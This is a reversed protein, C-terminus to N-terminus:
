RIGLTPHSQFGYVSDPGSSSKGTSDNENNNTTNNNSTYSAPYGGTEVFSDAVHSASSSSGAGGGSSGGYGGASVNDKGQAVGTTTESPTSPGPRYSNAAFMIGQTSFYLIEARLASNLHPQQLIGELAVIEVMNKDRANKKQNFRFPNLSRWTIDERNSYWIVIMGLMGRGAQLYSPFALLVQYDKSSLFSLFQFFLILGDFFIHGVVYRKSRNMISLRNSITISLGKENSRYFQFNAWLSYVYICLVIIYYLMFKPWNIALEARSNQIWLLGHQDYGYVRPGMLLLCVATLLSFGIVLAAFYFKNHKFSSFPNTYALRLDVSIVLFCMQVAILSFQTLFAWRGANLSSNCYYPYKSADDSYLYDKGVDPLWLYQQFYAIEMICGYIALGLELNGLMFILIFCICCHSFTFKSTPHRKLVPTRVIFYMWFLYAYCALSLLAFTRLATGQELVAEDFDCPQSLDVDSPVLFDDNAGM